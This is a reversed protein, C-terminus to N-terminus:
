GAFRVAPILPAAYATAAEAKTLVGTAVLRQLVHAQRARALHLHNVPDYATPAQLLGALMSAQGWSLQDAPVAFYHRAASQVGYAGDGFYAVDLYWALLTAKSYRADLKVALAADRAVAVPGTRGPNYLLKALQQDITAGAPDIGSRLPAVLARGIAVVDIGPHRYFRSDETALVAQGVRTPIRGADSQGRHGSRLAAVRAPADAVSPTLVMSLDVVVLAAILLGLATLGLRRRWLRASGVTALGEPGAPAAARVVM